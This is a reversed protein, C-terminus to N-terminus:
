HGEDILMEQGVERAVSSGKLAALLALGFEMAYGPGRGTIIPPSVVVGQNLCNCGPLETEMGPYITGQRGEMLGMSGLIMPAACIAGVWKGAEVFDRIRDRLLTNEMLNTTGPLGGPLVLMDVDQYDAQDITEDCTMEVGHAGKVRLGSVGIIKTSVAGRRLIDIIAIAELEEFGEALHVYVM